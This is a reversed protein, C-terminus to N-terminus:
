ENLNEKITLYDKVYEWSPVEDDVDDRYIPNGLNLCEDGLEQDYLDYFMNGDKWPDDTYEWCQVVDIKRHGYDYTAITRNKLNGMNTPHISYKVSPLMSMVSM